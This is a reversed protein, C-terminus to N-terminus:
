RDVSMLDVDAPQEDGHAAPPIPPPARHTATVIALMAIAAVILGGLVFAGALWPVYWRIPAPAEHRTRASRARARHPAVPYSSISARREADVRISVAIPM